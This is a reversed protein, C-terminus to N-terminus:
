DDRLKTLTHRDNELKTSTTELSQSLTSTIELSPELRKSAKFPNHWDDESKTGTTELSQLPAKHGLALLHKKVFFVTVFGIVTNKTVTYCLSVYTALSHKDALSFFTNIAMM